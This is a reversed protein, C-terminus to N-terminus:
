LLYLESFFIFLILYIIKVNKQKRDAVVIWKQGM